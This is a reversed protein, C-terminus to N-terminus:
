LKGVDFGEGTSDGPLGATANSKLVSTRNVASTLFLADPWSPAIVVVSVGTGGHAFWQKRSPTVVSVISRENQKPM